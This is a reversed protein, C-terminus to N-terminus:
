NIDRLRSATWDDWASMNSMGCGDADVGIGDRRRAERTGEVVDRASCPVSSAVRSGIGAHSARHYMYRNAKEHSGEVISVWSTRPVGM